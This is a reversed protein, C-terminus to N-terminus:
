FDSFKEVAETKSNRGDLYSIVFSSTSRYSCKSLVVRNCDGTVTDTANKWEVYDTVYKVYGGEEKLNNYEQYDSGYKESLLQKLQEYTYSTSRNFCVLVSSVMHTKSACTVELKVREGAFIGKMVVFNDRSGNADPLFGKGKLKSSFTSMTCNMSIGMFKLPQTQAVGALVTLFLVISVILKKM